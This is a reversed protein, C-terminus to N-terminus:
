SSVLSSLRSEIEAYNSIRAAVPGNGQKALLTFLKQPDVSLFQQVSILTHQPSEALDEYSMNLTDHQRFLDQCLTRHKRHMEVFTLYDEINITIQIQEPTKRQTASWVKTQEATKLSVYLGLLNKRILHIVKVEKRQVIQNFSHRYDPHDKYEYFLKLGVAKIQPAHPKFVKDSILNDSRTGKELEMRLVEGYSLVQTHSNLYTHLLTSGSRPDCLIVFPTYANGKNLSLKTLLQKRKIILYTRLYQLYYRM